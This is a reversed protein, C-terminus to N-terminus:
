TCIAIAYKLLFIAIAYKLLFFLYFIGFVTINLVRDRTFWGELAVFIEWMEKQLIM